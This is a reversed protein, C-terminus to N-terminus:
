QTSIKILQMHTCDGDKRIHACRWSIKSGASRGAQLNDSGPESQKLSERSVVLLLM